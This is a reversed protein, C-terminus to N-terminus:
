NVYILMELVVLHVTLVLLVLGFLQHPLIDMGDTAPCSASCKGCQMCNAVKEKSIEEVLLIDKKNKNFTKKEREM